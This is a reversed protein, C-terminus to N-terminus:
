IHIVSLTSPFSSAGRVLSAVGCHRSSIAPMLHSHHVLRSCVDKWGAPTSLIRQASCRRLVSSSCTCLECTSQMQDATQGREFLAATSTASLLRAPGSRAPSPSSSPSPSFCSLFASGVSPYCSACSSLATLAAQPLRYLWRTNFM